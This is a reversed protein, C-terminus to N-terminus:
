KGQPDPRITVQARFTEAGVTLRAEYTGPAVLAGRGAGGGRGGAQGAGAGRGRGGPPAAAPDARMDWIIRQLGRGEPLPLGRVRTGATADYIELTARDGRVPNLFVDLYAGDPPNPAAFNADGWWARGRDWRTIQLAPRPAFIAGAASTVTPTLGRLGGIADLIWIGRGHTGVVLDHERPHILLDHVGVTPLNLQLSFWRAGGDLSAFVGFMTGAFLLRPNVPDEVIAM